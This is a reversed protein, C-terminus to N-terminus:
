SNMTFLHYWLRELLYGHDEHELLFDKVKQYFKASHKHIRRKSVGFNASFNWMFYQPPEKKLGLKKYIWKLVSTKIDNREILRPILHHNFGGDEWILPFVCNFNEDLLECHIKNSDIHFVRTLDRIEMPPIGTKNVSEFWNCKKDNEKWRWSLPQYDTFNEYYKTITSILDPSHEFPDGQIFITYDHLNNYNNIIHDLYTGGERGNNPLDIVKHKSSLTPGKNYIIIDNTLINTWSCNEAYRAVVIQPLIEPTASFVYYWSYPITYLLCEYYLKTKYQIQQKTLSFTYTMPTFTGEEFLYETDLPTFGKGYLANIKTNFSVNHSNTFLLVNNTPLDYNEIIYHLVDKKTNYHVIQLNNLNFISTDCDRIFSKKIPAKKLNKAEESSNLIKLLDQKTKNCNLFKVYTNLGENDPDRKLVENYCETVIDTFSQQHTLTKVKMKKIDIKLNEVNEFFEIANLIAQDMNFYKYNALRGVFYVNPENEALIKYQEYLDMNRKNPVPYYPDGVDTSYERVITTHPSQQNLFHKYEVIRTFDVDNQPYNVVSNPQFFETNKLSIKEFNISRYELKELGKNAFYTDIPGTYFIKVYQSKDFTEYDTNLYVEINEHNLLSAFWATYGNEPLIQYADSFYREDFNDRVPIRQLVSPNLENPYKNWQKYTYHKFIKEYLEHGVNNLAAEESNQPPYHHTQNNELWQKMTKQDNVSPDILKNVTTINCPIPVFKDDVKGIVKHEYFVWNGYKQIYDYVRENNTHFLHAGYKNILIGNEDKYDYCNGGIHNRKEVITVKKNLVRAYMDAIVCGSLGCGAILIDSM